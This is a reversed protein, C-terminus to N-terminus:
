LPPTGVVHRHLNHEGDRLVQYNGWKAQLDTYARDVREVVAECERRVNALEAAHQQGLKGLAVRESHPTAPTATDAGSAPPRPERVRPPLPSCM